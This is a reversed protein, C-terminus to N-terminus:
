DDNKDSERLELVDKLRGINISGTIMAFEQLANKIREVVPGITDTKVVETYANMLFTVLDDIRINEYKEVQPYEGAYKDLNSRDLFTIFGMNYKGKIMAEKIQLQTPSIKHTNVDSYEVLFCIDCIGNDIRDTCQKILSNWNGPKKGEAIIRVGNLAIIVDPEDRKKVQKKLIVEGLSNLGRESLIEALMINLNEERVQDPLDEM